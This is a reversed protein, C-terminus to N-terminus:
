FGSKFNCIVRVVTVGTLRITLAIAEEDESKNRLPMVMPSGGSLFKAQGFDLMM